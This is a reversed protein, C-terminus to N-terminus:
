KVWYGLLAGAFGSAAQKEGDSADARFLTILAYAGFGLSVLIQMAFRSWKMIKDDAAQAFDRGAARPLETVGDPLAAKFPGEAIFTWAAMVVAEVLPLRPLRRLVILVAFGALFIVLVLM